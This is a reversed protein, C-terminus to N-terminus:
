AMNQQGSAAAPRAATTKSMIRIKWCGKVRKELNGIQAGTGTPARKIGETQGAVRVLVSRCEPHGARRAAHQLTSDKVYQARFESIPLYTEKGTEADIVHAVRKGSQFLERPLEPAQTRLRLALSGRQWVTLERVYFGRSDHLSITKQYYPANM